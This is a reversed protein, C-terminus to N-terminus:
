RRVDGPYPGAGGRDRDPQLVRHGDMDGRIFEMDDTSAADIAHAVFQSQRYWGLGGIAASAFLVAGVGFGAIRVWLPREITDKSPVAAHM